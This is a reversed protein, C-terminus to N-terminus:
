GVSPQESWDFDNNTLSQSFPRRNDHGWGTEGHQKRIRCLKARKGTKSRSAAGGRAARKGYFGFGVFWCVRMVM